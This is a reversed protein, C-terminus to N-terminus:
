RWLAKIRGWSTSRAPTAQLPRFALDVIKDGPNPTLFAANTEAFTIPDFEHVQTTVGDVILIRGSYPSIAVGHPRAWGTGAFTNILNYAPDYVYCVNSSMVTVLINGGPLFAIDNTRDGFPQSWSSLIAGGVPDIEAVMYNTYSCVYLNGNPGITMDAAGPFPTLVYLFAGTNPDYVRLDNTNQSGIIVNGNPAYLGAWQFGGGPAYTKIYAGSAADFEDVGGGFHGVLVRNNTAGFHIALQGVGLASSTFIGLYSGTSGTYARVVNSADSTVFLDGIGGAAHASRAPAGVFAFLTVAFICALILAPRLRSM